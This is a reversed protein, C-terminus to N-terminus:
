DPKNRHKALAQKLADPAKELVDKVVPNKARKAAEAFDEDFTEPSAQAQGLGALLRSQSMRKDAVIDHLRTDRGSFVSALAEVAPFIHEEIARNTLEAMFQAAEDETCAFPAVEEARVTLHEGSFCQVELPGPQLVTDDPVLWRNGHDDALLRM